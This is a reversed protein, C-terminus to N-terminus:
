AGEVAFMRFDAAGVRFKKAEQYEKSNYFDKVKELSDFEIIVVRPPPPEGELTLTKGSRAVFKAGYKKLVAPARNVYEQYQAPDTVTVLSILYAPM